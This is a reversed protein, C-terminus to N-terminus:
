GKLEEVLAVYQRMAEEAPMGKLAHWADWKARGVFDSFGPREGDVDGATAQKYLAYLKLLIDNDPRQRLTKVDAVAKEFQAKVDSM